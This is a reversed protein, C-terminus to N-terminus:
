DCYRLFEAPLLQMDIAESRIQPLPSSNYTNWFMLSAERNRAREADHLLAAMAKGTYTSELELGLADRAIDIAADTAANSRAYGDAFFEHRVEIRARRHLDAPIGPDLRNLMRATKAMLLDLRRRNMIEEPSVRVAQVESGLGALALGLALGGASGMTGTAMYIKTPVEIEGADIQSALELGAGVYGVTGLWSSGGLPIVWTRRGRVHKRLTDVRARYDGGYQVIEAGSQLLQKLVKEVAPSRVQHSLLCTCDLDLRRAYLATALAHHSAVSGFTAVRRARRDIARQLLYELKRLKNGGYYSSTLNDHKIGIDLTGRAVPIAGYGVPTPLNALAVKRLKGELAPYANVLYDAMIAQEYQCHTIGYAFVV